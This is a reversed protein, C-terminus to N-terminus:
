LASSDRLDNIMVIFCISDFLFPHNDPQHGRRRWAAQVRGAPEEAAKTWGRARRREGTLNMHPTLITIFYFALTDSYPHPAPTQPFPPSGVRFWARFGIVVM